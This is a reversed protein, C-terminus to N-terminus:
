IIFMDLPTRARKSLTRGDIRRYRPNRALADAIDTRQVILRSEFPYMIKFPKIKKAKRVAIAVGQTIKRHAEALPLPNAHSRNTANLVEVTVIGSILKRAEICAARDGAVMILPVSFYGAMAAWEGIEGVVKGGLSHQFWEKSDQTHDMLAKATGAMAHQGIMVTGDFSKDMCGCWRSRDDDIVARKDINKRIFNKGNGLHGDRIYVELAGGKFAGEIAANTDLTLRRRMDLTVVGSSYATKNGSICEMDTMIYIKM